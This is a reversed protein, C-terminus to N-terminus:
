ITNKFYSKLGHSLTYIILTYYPIYHTETLEVPLVKLLQILSRPNLGRRCWFSIPTKIQNYLAIILFPRCLIVIM